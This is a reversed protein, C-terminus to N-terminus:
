IKSMKNYTDMLSKVYHPATAYGSNKIITYYELPSKGIAARYRRGSILNAYDDFEEAISDYKRFADNIRIDKGDIHESTGYVKSKGKYGKQAKIGFLTTGMNGGSELFAQALIVNPDVQLRAAIREAEPMLQRKFEDIKLNKSPTTKKPLPTTKVPMVPLVKEEKIEEKVPEKVTPTIKPATEVPKQMVPNPIDSFDSFPLDMREKIYEPKKFNYTLFTDNM